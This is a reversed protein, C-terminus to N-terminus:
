KPTTDIESGYSYIFTYASNDGPDYKCRALIPTHMTLTSAGRDVFADEMIVNGSPDRKTTVGDAEKAEVKDVCYYVGKVSDAGFLQNVWPMTMTSVFSYETKPSDATSRHTIAKITFATNTPSLCKNLDIQNIINGAGDDTGTLTWKDFEEVTAYSGPKIEFNYTDYYSKNVAYEQYDTQTASISGMSNVTYTWKSIKGVTGSNDIQLVHFKGEAYDDNSLGSLPSKARVVGGYYTEAFDEVAAEREADNYKTCVIRGYEATSLEGEIFRSINTVAASGNEQIETMITTKYVPMMVSTAAALIIGFIAIVVILEILTFGKLKKIKKSKM